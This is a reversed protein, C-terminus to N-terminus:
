PGILYECLKNWPIEEYEKAPLKGYKLSSRKTFQCTDCNTVEKRVVHIIRPWYLHHRIMVEIRDMVPHLLYTHYWYLAYSQLISPICIKYECTILNIDVNSLGCFYGKHYTGDKYKAMLSPETRQYQTILKLNISFTDEHIEEIDNIESM